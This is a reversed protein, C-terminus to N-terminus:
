SYAVTRRKGKQMRITILCAVSKAFTALLVPRLKRAPLYCLLEEHVGTPLKCDLRWQTTLCLEPFPLRLTVKSLLYETQECLNMSICINPRLLAFCLAYRMISRMANEKLNIKSCTKRFSLWRISRAPGYRGGFALIDVCIYYTTCNKGDICASGGIEEERQVEEVRNDQSLM